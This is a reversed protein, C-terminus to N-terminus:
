GGYPSEIVILVGLSTELTDFVPLSAEIEVCLRRFCALCKFRVTALSELLYGFSRVAICPQTM